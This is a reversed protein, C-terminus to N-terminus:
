GSQTTVNEHDRETKRKRNVRSASGEGSSRTSTAVDNSSSSSVPTAGGGSSSSAVAASSSSSSSTTTTPADEEMQVTTERIEMQPHGEELNTKTRKTGREAVKDQYEKVRRQAAAASATGRLEDEIRKRCNETHAERSTRRLLSLCGSMEGHVRIEELDELTIHVRNPARVHEKMKLKEKYDKERVVVEGKLREENMKVDDENMRWPVGVDDGPQKTGMKRARVQEPGNKHALLRQPVGRHSVGRNRQHGFVRWREAHLDIEWASRRSM